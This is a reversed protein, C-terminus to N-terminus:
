VSEVAGTWSSVVADPVGVGRAFVMGGLVVKGGYVSAIQQQVLARRENFDSDYLPIADWCMGLESAWGPKLEQGNGLVNTFTDQVVRRAHSESITAGQCRSGRAVNLMMTARTFCDDDTNGNEQPENKNFIGVSYKAVDSDFIVGMLKSQNFQAKPVLFGFGEKEKANYPLLVNCVGVSTYEFESLKQQLEGDQVMKSLHLTNITSRVYDSEHQIESKTLITVKDGNNVIQKVGDGIVLEVNKPLHDRLGDCFSELGADLTLMPYKKLLTSLENMDFESGFLDVYSQVSDDLRNRVSDKSKNKRRKMATKIISGGEKELQVMAPMVNNVNLDGVDAAYIGYMLASGVENILDKGFHRNFFEEVSMGDLEKGDSKFFYDRLIALMIIKGYSSAFFSLITSMKCGPSPVELLDGTVMGLQTDNGKHKTLLYKKNGPSDIPVGCLQNIMGMRKLLDIIILTGASVGRLTRPGREMRLASTSSLGTIKQTETNATTTNIFGGVRSQQEFIKINLDPRLHALFYAYSLGSIGAGIVSVRSNKAFKTLKIAM